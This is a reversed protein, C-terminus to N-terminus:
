WGAGEWWNTAAGLAMRRLDRQQLARPACARLVGLSSEQATRLAEGLGRGKMKVGVGGLLSREGGLPSRGSDGRRSAPM